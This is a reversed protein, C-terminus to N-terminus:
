RFLLLKLTLKAATGTGSTSLPIADLEAGIATIDKEPFSSITAKTKVSEAPWDQDIRSPPNEVALGGVPYESKSTENM